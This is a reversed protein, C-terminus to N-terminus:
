NKVKTDATHAKQLKHKGIKSKKKTKKVMQISEDSDSNDSIINSNLKRNSKKTQIATAVFASKRFASKAQKNSSQTNRPIDTFSTNNMLCESKAHKLRYFFMLINPNLIVLINDDIAILYM